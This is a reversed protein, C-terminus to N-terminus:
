FAVRQFGKVRFLLHQSGVYFKHQCTYETRKDICKDKPNTGIKDELGIYADIDKRGDDGEFERHHAVEKPRVKPYPLVADFAPASKQFRNM